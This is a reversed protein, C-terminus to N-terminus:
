CNHRLRLLQADCAMRLQGAGDAAGMRRCGSTATVAGLGASRCARGCGVVWLGCTGAVARLPLWRVQVDWWALQVLDLPDPAEAGYVGVRVREVAGEVYGPAVYGDSFQNPVLKALVSIKGPGREREYRSSLTVGRM